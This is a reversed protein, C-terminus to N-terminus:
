AGDQEEYESGYKSGMPNLEYALVLSPDPWNDKFTHALYQGATGGNQTAMDVMTFITAM